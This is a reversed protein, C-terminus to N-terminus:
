NEGKIIKSMTIQTFGIFYNKQTANIFLDAIEIAEKAMEESPLIYEHELKNRINRIQAITPKSYLKILGTRTFTIFVYM